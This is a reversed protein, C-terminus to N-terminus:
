DFKVHLLYLKQIPKVLNQGIEPWIQSKGIKKSTKEDSPVKLRSYLWWITSLYWMNPILTFSKCVGIIYFSICLLQQVSHAEGTWLKSGVGIKELM